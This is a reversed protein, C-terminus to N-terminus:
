PRVRSVRRTIRGPSISTRAGRSPVTRCSTSAPSTCRSTPATGGSGPWRWIIGDATYSSTPTNRRRRRILQQQYQAPSHVLQGNSQHAYAIDLFDDYEFSREDPSQTIRDSLLWRWLLQPNYSKGIVPSGPRSGWYFGFRTAAALYIRTRRTWDLPLLRIKISLNVDMYRADGSDKTLGGTEAEFPQLVPEYTVPEGGGPPAANM